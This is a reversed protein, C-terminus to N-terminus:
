LQLADDYTMADGSPGRVLPHDTRLLASPVDSLESATLYGRGLCSRCDPLLVPVLRCYPCVSAPLLALADNRLQAASALLRHLGSRPLLKKQTQAAAISRAGHGAVERLRAQLESVGRAWDEPLALGLTDIEPPLLGQRRKRARRRKIALAANRNTRAKREAAKAAQLAALAAVKDAEIGAQEADWADRAAQWEARARKAAEAKRAWYGSGRPVELRAAQVYRYLSLRSLEIPPRSAIAIGM